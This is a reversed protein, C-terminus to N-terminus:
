RASWGGDVVLDIGTLWRAAPSVAYSVAWAVDDVTGPGLPYQSWHSKLGDPLLEATREAMRSEVMGPSVTVARIRRGALELALSRVFANLAGKSAAYAAYGSAGRVGLVSSVYVLVGGERVKGARLLERTLSMAATTNIGM